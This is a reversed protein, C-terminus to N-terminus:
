GKPCDEDDRRDVIWSMPILPATDGKTVGEVRQLGLKHPAGTIELKYCGPKCMTETHVRTVGLSDPSLIVQGTKPDQFVETAKCERKHAMKWDKSQCEKSCYVVSNCRACVSLKVGQAVPPAGCFFCVTRSILKEQDTPETIPTQLRELKELDLEFTRQAVVM